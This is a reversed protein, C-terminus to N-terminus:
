GFTVTAVPNISKERQLLNTILEAEGLAVRANRKRRTPKRCRFESEQRDIDDSNPGQNEEPHSDLMSFRNRNKGGM